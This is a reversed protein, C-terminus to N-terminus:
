SIQHQIGRESLFKVLTIASKEDAIAALDALSPHAKFKYLESYITFVGRMRKKKAFDWVAMTMQTNVAETLFRRHAAASVPKGKPEPDSKAPSSAVAKKSAKGAAKAEPKHSVPEPKAPADVEAKSAKGSAKAQPTPSEPAPEAKTPQDTATSTIIFPITANTNVDDIVQIDLYSKTTNQSEHGLLMRRVEINSKGLYGKMTAVAKSAVDAYIGRTAKHANANDRHSETPLLRSFEFTANFTETVKSVADNFARTDRENKIRELEEPRRRFLVSEIRHRTIQVLELAQDPSLFLVPIDLSESEKALGSAYIHGPRESASFETVLGIEISRRGTAFAVALYPNAYDKPNNNREAYVKEVYSKVASLYAIPTNTSSADLGQNYRRQRELYLEKPYALHHRAPHAFPLARLEDLLTRPVPSKALIDVLGNFKDATTSDFAALYEAYEQFTEKVKDLELQFHPYFQPKAVHKLFYSKTSSVQSMASEILMKIGPNNDQETYDAYANLDKKYADVCELTKALYTEWAKYYQEQSKNFLERSPCFEKDVKLQNQIYKNRKVTPAM